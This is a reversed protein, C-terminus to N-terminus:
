RPGRRAIRARGHWHRTWARSPNTTNPLNRARTRITPCFIPCSSRTPRIRPKPCGPIPEPIALIGIPIPFDLTCIFPNSGTLRRLFRPLITRLGACMAGAAPRTTGPICRSPNSTSNAWSAPRSDRPKCSKPVSPMTLHTHFNHIGHSHGYQGHTHSYHGTLLNARSAACSPTTCFAHQFLTGRAALADVSPMKIVENGYCGAIPSWDDAILLLVNRHSM